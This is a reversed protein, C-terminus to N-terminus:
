RKDLKQILRDFANSFRDPEFSNLKELATRLYDPVIPVQGTPLDLQLQSDLDKYLPLVDGRKLFAPDLEDEISRFAWTIQRASDFDLLRNKAEQGLVHVLSEASPRDFRSTRLEKLLGDTWKAMQGAARSIRRADGFPQAHFVGGLEKMAAKFEATLKDRRQPDSKSVQHIGLDILSTAWPRMEPRGPRGTYGRKQRWSDSKLDHHCAYCDFQALEPWTKEEDAAQTALLAMSDRFSVVGAIVVLQTRELSSKGPQYDLLKQVKPSKEALYKWHRPMADSFTSLEISPLPPHGAAYMAHTVVKGEATSGVHCSICLNARKEPDWLDRMGYQEEKVTRSLSRWTERDLFDAHKSVWEKYQGHCAACTVGEELNFSPKHILKMDQVLVGHCSVCSADTAVDKLGLLKGMQQGRPGKLVRNADRHKDFKSWIDVENYACLIIDQQNAKLPTNHCGGNSCALVGFYLKTPRPVARPQKEQIVPFEQPSALTPGDLWPILGVTAVLFCAVLLKCLTTTNM